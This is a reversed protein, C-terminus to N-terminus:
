KFQRIINNFILCTKTARRKLQILYHSYCFVITKPLDVVSMAAPKQHKILLPCARKRLRLTKVTGQKVRSGFPSCGDYIYITNTTQVLDYLM